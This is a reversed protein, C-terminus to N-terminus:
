IDLRAYTDNTIHTISKENMCDLRKSLNKADRRLTSNDLLTENEVYTIKYEGM